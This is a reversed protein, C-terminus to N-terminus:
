SVAECVRLCLQWWFDLFSSTWSPFSGLVDWLELEGKNKGLM